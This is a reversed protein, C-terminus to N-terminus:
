EISCAQQYEILYRPIESASLTAVAQEYRDKAAQCQYQIYAYYAVFVLISVLIIAAIAKVWTSVM